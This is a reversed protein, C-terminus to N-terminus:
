LFLSRNDTIVQHLVCAIRQINEEDTYDLGLANYIGHLVEHMLAQEKKQKGLDSLIQIKQHLYDIHALKLEERSIYEVEEIEYTLGLIKIQRLPSREKAVDAAKIIDGM